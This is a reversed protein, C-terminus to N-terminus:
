DPEALRPCWTTLWGNGDGTAIDATSNVILHAYREPSHSSIYEDEGPMWHEIDAASTDGRGLLRSVRIDRPCTFWIRLDYYDTLENRTATIGDIITVGSVDIAVWDKLRDAPWDYLQFRATKGSRLPVIVQNRLREWDIDSVTALPFQYNVREASPRFFNDTLVLSASTKTEKVREALWRAFTTKGSGAGGDIGVLVSRGPAVLRTVCQVVEQIPLKM